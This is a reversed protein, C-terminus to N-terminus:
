GAGPASEDHMVWRGKGARKGALMARDALTLLTSADRSHRPYMAVGISIGVLAEAGGPLAIPAEFADLLRNLAHQEDYLGSLQNLVLVFEDGGIRAVVDNGRVSASLREATGRLLADGADHGLTDNVAKFGDLDLYCIALWRDNRQADRQLFALRELLLQRNPLGTLMDHFALHRAQEESHKIATIDTMLWVSEGDPLASGSLDIWIPRGDKRRMRLQSRYSNTAALRQYGLGVQVYSEDDLYLLRSPTGSLEGPEYGFLRALAANHWVEQREHLKVMGVLENDLLAGREAALASIQARARVQRAQARYIVASAAVVIAALLLLLGGLQAMQRWWPAFFDETALGVQILLPHQGVQTYATVREVGDLMSRAVYSGQTPNVKLAAHFADSVQALGLRAEPTRDQPSYRAILRLSTSRLVVVGQSGVDTLRFDQVLGDTGIGGYVVGIFRGAEDLRARALILGWGKKLRGQLPESIALRTPDARAAQFYDRDAMSVSSPGDADPNLVRGDADTIRLATLSPVLARQADAIRTLEGAPAPGAARLRDVQNRTSLLSNDVLQLTSAVRLSLTRALDAASARGREQQARYSASIVLLAALAILALLLLNGLILYRRFRKLDATLQPAANQPM